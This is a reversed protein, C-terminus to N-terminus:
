VGPKTVSIETIVAYGNYGAGGFNTSDYKVQGTAADQTFVVGGDDYKSDGEPSTKWLNTEPDVALELIVPEHVSQGDDRRFVNLGLRVRHVFNKDFIVGILDVPAAQNDLITVQEGVSPAQSSSFGDFFEVERTMTNREWLEIDFELSGPVDNTVKRFDNNARIFGIHATDSYTYGSAGIIGIEYSLDKRLVFPTSFRVYGHANSLTGITSIVVEASERILQGSQDFLQVKVNGSPTGSRLIHPRIFVLNADRSLTIRQKLATSRVPNYLFKM